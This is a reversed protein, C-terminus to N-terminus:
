GFFGNGYYPQQFSGFANNASGYYNSYGGSYGLGGGNGDLISGSGSWDSQPRGLVLALCLFQLHCSGFHTPLLFGNSYCTYALQPHASQLSRLKNLEPKGRKSIYLLRDDPKM